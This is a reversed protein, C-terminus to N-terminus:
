GFSYAHSCHQHNFAVQSESGRIMTSCENWLVRKQVLLVHHEDNSRHLIEMPARALKAPVAVLAVVCAGEM